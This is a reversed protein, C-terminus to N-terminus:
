INFVHKTGVIAIRSWMLEAFTVVKRCLLLFKKRSINPGSLAFDLMVDNGECSAYGCESGPLSSTREYQALAFAFKRQNKLFIKSSM